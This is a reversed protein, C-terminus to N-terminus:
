DKLEFNLELAGRQNAPITARLDSTNPDAYKLPTKSSRPAQPNELSIDGFTQVTVVYEGPVIGRTGGFSSVEYTGDPKITGLAPHTPGGSKASAPVFNVTGETVPQGNYTVKGRVKITAPKAGGGSCGSVIVAVCLLFALRGSRLGNM